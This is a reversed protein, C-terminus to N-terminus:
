QCYRRIDRAALQAQPLYFIGFHQAHDHGIREADGDGARMALAGGGRHDADGEHSHPISGLMTTPPVNGLKATRFGCRPPLTKDGLGALKVATEVAQVRGDAQDGVDLLIMEITVLVDVFDDGAEV